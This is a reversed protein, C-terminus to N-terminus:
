QCHYLFACDNFKTKIELSQKINRLSLIKKQAINYADQFTRNTITVDTNKQKGSIGVQIKFIEVLKQKRNRTSRKLGIISGDPYFIKNIDLNLRINRLMRIKDLKKQRIEAFKYAKDGYQSISFYEQIGLVKDQVRYRKVNQKSPHALITM